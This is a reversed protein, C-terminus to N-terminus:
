TISEMDLYQHISGSLFALIGTFEVLWHFSSEGNKRTLCCFGIVTSLTLLGTAIMKETFTM